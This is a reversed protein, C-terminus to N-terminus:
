RCLCSIVRSYLNTHSSPSITKFAANKQCQLMADIMQRHWLVSWTEWVGAHGSVHVTCITCCCLTVRNILVHPITLMHPPCVATSTGLLSPQRISGLAKFSVICHLITAIYFPVVDNRCSVSFTSPRMALTLPSHCGAVNGYNSLSLRLISCGGSHNLSRASM